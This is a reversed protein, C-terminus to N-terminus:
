DTLWNVMVPRAAWVFQDSFGRDNCWHFHACFEALRYDDRGFRRPRHDLRQNNRSTKRKAVHGVPESLIASHCGELLGALAPFDFLEDLFM